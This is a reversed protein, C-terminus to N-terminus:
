WRHLLKIISSLRSVSINKKRHWLSTKRLPPLHKVISLRFMLGMWECASMVGFSNCSLHNFWGPFRFWYFFSGLHNFGWVELCLSYMGRILCMNRVKNRKTTTHYLHIKVMDNLTVKVPMGKLTAESASPCDWSQGLALSAVRFSISIHMYLSKLCKM